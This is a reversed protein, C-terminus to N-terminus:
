TVSATAEDALDVALVILHFSAGCDRNPIGNAGSTAGSERGRALAYGRFDQIPSVVDRVVFKQSEGFLTIPPSSRSNFYIVPNREACSSQIFDVTKEPRCMTGYVSDPWM